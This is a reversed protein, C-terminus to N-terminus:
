IAIKRGNILVSDSDDRYEEAIFNGVKEFFKRYDDELDFFNDKTELEAWEEWEYEEHVVYLHPQSVEKRLTVALHPSNPAFQALTLDIYYDGLALWSHSKGGFSGNIATFSHLFLFSETSDDMNFQKLIYAVANRCLNYCDNSYNGSISDILDIDQMDQVFVDPQILEYLKEFDAPQYYKM